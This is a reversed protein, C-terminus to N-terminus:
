FKKIIGTVIIPKELEKWFNIYNSDVPSGNTFTGITIHPIENTCMQSIFWGRELRFAMAKDDYGIHTVKLTVMNDLENRLYKEVYPNHNNKHMLTHHHCYVRQLDEFLETFGDERDKFLELLRERSEEILVVAYYNYGLNDSMAAM